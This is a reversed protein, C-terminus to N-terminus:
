LFSKPKLLLTWFLLPYLLDTIPVGEVFVIKTVCGIMKKKQICAGGGIPTLFNAKYNTKLQPPLFGNKGNMAEKLPQWEGSLEIVAVTQGGGKMDRALLKDLGGAKANNQNHYPLLSLYDTKRPVNRNASNRNVPTKTALPTQRPPNGKLAPQSSQRKQVLSTKQQPQLQAKPNVTQRPRITPTTKVGSTKNRQLAARKVQPKARVATRSSTKKAVVQRKNVPTTKQPAKQATTVKRASARKTILARQAQPQKAVLPRQPRKQAIVQKKRQSSLSRTPAPKTPPKKKVSSTQPRAHSYIRGEVSSSVIFSFMFIAVLTKLLKKVM